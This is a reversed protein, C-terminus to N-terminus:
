RRERIPLYHPLPEQQIPDLSSRLVRRSESPQTSSKRGSTKPCSATNTWSWERSLQVESPTGTKRVKSRSKPGTLSISKWIPSQPNELGIKRPTRKSSRGSSQRRKGIRPSSLGIGGLNKMPTDSSKTLPLSQSGTNGPGSSLESAIPTM